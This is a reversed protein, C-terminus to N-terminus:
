PVGHINFRYIYMICKKLDVTPHVKRLADHEAHISTLGERKLALNKRNHGIAVIKTGEMIMACLQYKCDSKKARRIAKEKLEM